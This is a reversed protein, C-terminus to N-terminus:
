NIAHQKSLAQLPFCSHDSENRGAEKIEATQISPTGVQALREAQVQFLGPRVGNVAASASSWSPVTNTGLDGEQPQKRIALVLEPTRIPQNERNLM